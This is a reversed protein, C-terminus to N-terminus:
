LPGSWSGGLAQYLAATDAYRAAQAAVFTAEAQAYAQVALRDQLAGTEGLATQRQAFTLGREAGAAATKAVRLADADRSLADLCDAVNKLASLAASRYQAKAQDLAAEAAKQRHLLAGGAFVPQTVGATLTWFDNGHTLLDQIGLSAGGAIASLSIDPIRAAIAVGVQASAAHLNAEAARVDARQRVLQAPLVLPLDAPLTIADLAPVTPAGQGPERGLLIALATQQQGLAKQLTPVAQEAQALVVEQAAVDAQGLAGLEAQRRTFALIDRGAVAAKMAADLQAQLAADQIAANIVNAILSTRAAEYQFRQNEAQAKAAEVARRVGGFVDPSYDIEVQATHLSYLSANDATVPQLANSTKARQAQYSLDASPWLAGRQAALLQRAQSLAADASKLDPNARLAEDVLADLAPSGFARWWAAPVPQGAHLQQDAVASAPSPAYVASVPAAPTKFNPGVACGALGLAILGMATAARGYRIM